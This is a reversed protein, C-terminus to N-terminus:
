RDCAEGLRRCHESVAGGNTVGGGEGPEGVVVGVARHGGQGLEIDQTWLPRDLEDVRKHAGRDVGVQVGAFSLPGVRARRLHQGVGTLPRLPDRSVQQEHRGATVLGGDGGKLHRRPAREGRAIGACRRGVQAPRDGLGRGLALQWIDQELEARGLRKDFSRGRRVM